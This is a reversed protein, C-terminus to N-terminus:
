QELGIMKATATTLIDRMYQLNADHLTNALQSFGHKGSDRLFKGLEAEGPLNVALPMSIVIRKHGNRTNNQISIEINDVFSWGDRDYKYAIKSNWGQVDDLFRAPLFKSKPDIIKHTPLPKDTEWFLYDIYHLNLGVIKFDKQHGAIKAFWKKAKALEKSWSDYELINVALWKNAENFEGRLRNALTGDAGFREFSFGFESRGEPVIQPPVNAVPSFTGSLAMYELVEFKPFEKKFQRTHLKKYGSPNKIPTSPALRLTFTCEKISHSDAKPVLYKLPGSGAM